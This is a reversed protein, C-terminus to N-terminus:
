EQEKIDGFHSYDKELSKVLSGEKSSFGLKSNERSVKYLKSYNELRGIDWSSAEM